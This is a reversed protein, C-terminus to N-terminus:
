ALGALGLSAWRWCQEHNGGLCVSGPFKGQSESAGRKDPKLNKCFFFFSFLQKQLQLLRTRCLQRFMACPFLFAPCLESHLLFLVPESSM